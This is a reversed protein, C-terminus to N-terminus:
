SSLPHGTAPDFDPWSADKPSIVTVPQPWQISFFPDDHRFGREAEPAYFASVKYEVEVDGTLTLFGHAFGQPVYLWRLPEPALDVGFWRRYTPSSPRLDVIVDHIAGRLCRVLKVEAHPAVQYHM